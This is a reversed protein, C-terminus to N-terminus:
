VNACIYILNPYKVNFKGLLDAIKFPHELKFQMTEVPFYKKFDQGNVTIKGKGKSLYVRAVSRKRRGIAQIVNM